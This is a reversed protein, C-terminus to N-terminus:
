GEVSKTEKRNAIEGKDMLVQKGKPDHADRRGIVQMSEHYAQLYLASQEVGCKGDGFIINNPM